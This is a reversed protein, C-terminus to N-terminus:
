TSSARGCETVRGCVWTMGENWRLRGTKGGSGESGEGNGDGGGESCMVAGRYM